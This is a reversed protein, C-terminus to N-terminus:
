VATRNRAPWPSLRRFYRQPGSAWFRSGILLPVALTAIAYCVWLVTMTAPGLWQPKNVSLHQFLLGGQQAADQLKWAPLPGSPLHAILGAYYPLAYINMGFMDIAALLLAVFAAALPFYRRSWFLIGATLLLSEAAAISFLYSGSTAAQHLVLSSVLVHYALTALMGATIALSLGVVPRGRDPWSRVLYAVAGILAILWIASVLHYMWARVSIVTWGCAFTHGAMLSDLPQLWGISLAAHLKATWSLARSAADVQEGSLTGTIRLNRAYWWGSIAAPLVTLPVVLLLHRRGTLFRVCFWVLLVAFTSLFYAKTLLAASLALSLLLAAQWDPRELLRVAAWMICSGVAIALAENGVRSATILLQPMAVLLAASALGAVRGAFAEAVRHAALVVFSSLLVGALRLIVVRQPLSASRLVTYVPSILWYYLPPQQREYVPLWHSELDTATSPPLNLLKAQMVDRTGPSLKWYTEYSLHTGTTLSEVMAKPLPALEFSATVDPPVTNAEGIIPHGLAVHEIYAFHSYEDAPEWIPMAAAYFCGRVLYCAWLLALM